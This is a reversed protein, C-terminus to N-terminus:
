RAAKALICGEKLSGIFVNEDSSLSTSGADTDDMANLGIALNNAGNAGHVKGADKGFFTNTGEGISIGPMQITGFSGTSTASGSINGDSDVIVQSSFPGLTVKNDSFAEIVPLGSVTNASFLSGTMQDTVSFLRGNNGDVAVVLSQSLIHTDTYSFDRIHLSASTAPGSGSIEMSGSLSLTTDSGGFIVNTQAAAGIVTHNDAPVTVDYGIGIQNTAGTGTFGTGQGIAINYNGTQVADGALRGIGVNGIGTSVAKLARYGVATNGTANGGTIVQYGLGVNQDGTTVASGVTYGVLVNGVAGTTLTQGTGGYGISFNNTGKTFDFKAMGDTAVLELVGFSGTSAASGSFLPETGGAGAFSVINEYKGFSATSTASGSITNGIFLHTDDATDGFITSGSAQAISMSVVSSSVIYDEAFLKKTFIPM